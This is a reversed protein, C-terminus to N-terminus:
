PQQAGEGSQRDRESQHRRKVLARLANMEGSDIWYLAVLKTTPITAAEAADVIGRAISEIARLRELEDRAEELEDGMEEIHGSMQSASDECEKYRAEVARLRKLEATLENVRDNLEAFDLM